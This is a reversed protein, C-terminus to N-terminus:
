EWKNDTLSEHKIAWRSLLSELILESNFLKGWCGVVIVDKLKVGVMLVAYPVEFM